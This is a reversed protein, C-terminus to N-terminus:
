DDSPLMCMCCRRSLAGDHPRRLGGWCSNALGLLGSFGFVVTTALVLLSAASDMSPYCRQVPCPLASPGGRSCLEENFPGDCLCLCCHGQICSKTVTRFCTEAGAFWTRNLLSYDNTFASSYPVLYGVAITLGNLTLLGETITSVDLLSFGPHALQLRRPRVPCRRKRTTWGVVAVVGAPSSRTGLTGARTRWAAALVKVICFSVM